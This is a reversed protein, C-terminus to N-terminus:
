SAPPPPDGAGAHGLQRSMRAAADVLAQMVADQPASTWRFEPILFGLSGVVKGEGDFFPAAIGVTNLTRHAHTIGYGDRRIQRLSDRVEAEDPELQRAPSPERRKLAAAIEQESLHALLVRATAGWVLPELAGLEINYRMPDAPSGKAAYYMKLQERLLLALISTEHFEASLAQLYPEALKRYPMRAGLRGAIRFLEPGPEFSSGAESDAFGNARLMALLRHVTSRPLNLRAALSQASDGQHDALCSLLLLVRRVTGTEKEPVAPPLLAGTQAKTSKVNGENRTSL